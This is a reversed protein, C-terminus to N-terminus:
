RQGLVKRLVSNEARLTTVMENLTENHRNIADNAARLENVQTVLMATSDEAAKLAQRFVESLAEPSPAPTEPSRWEKRAAALKELADSCAPCLDCM